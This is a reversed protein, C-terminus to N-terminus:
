RERLAAAALACSGTIGEFPHNPLMLSVVVLGEYPQLLQVRRAVEAMREQVSRETKGVKFM